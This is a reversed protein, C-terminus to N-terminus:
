NVKSIDLEDCLSQIKLMENQWAGHQAAAAGNPASIKSLWHLDSWKRLWTLQRKALQRTAACGREILQDRNLEGDIFQWAQRYGVARMSPMDPDLDWQNRLARVEEIYGRSIMDRFRHEIRQHLIERDCEIALQLTQYPFTTEQQAAHFSSLPEKTAEYVELARQIRQSHNPHIKEASAPDVQQLRRHLTPWGNQEAEALLRSRIEAPVPPIDAIGEFLVKFYLMTGGVLLPINGRGVIQQMLDLADRRFNAASYTQDPNRINILFHPLRQLFAKDPKATGIDMGRYILASDVSIVEVPYCQAIELALDTKGSATPGMLFIAPPKKEM